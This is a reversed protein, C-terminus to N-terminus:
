IPDNNVGLLKDNLAELRKIYLEREKWAAIMAALHKRSNVARGEWNSLTTYTNIDFEVAMELTTKM